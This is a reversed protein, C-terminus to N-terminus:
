LAYAVSRVATAVPLGPDARDASAAGVAPWKVTVFVLQGILHRILSAYVYFSWRRM